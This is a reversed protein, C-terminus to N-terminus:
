RLHESLFFIDIMNFYIFQCSLPKLFEHISCHGRAAHISVIMPRRHLAHFELGSPLRIIGSVLNVSNGANKTSGLTLIERDANSVSIQNNKKGIVNFNNNIM